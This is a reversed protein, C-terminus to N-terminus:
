LYHFTSVQELYDRVDDDLKAWFLPAEMQLKMLQEISLDFLGEMRGQRIANYSASGLSALAEQWADESM